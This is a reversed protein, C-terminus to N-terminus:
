PNTHTISPSNNHLAQFWVLSLWTCPRLGKVIEGVWLFMETWIYWSSKSIPYFSTVWKLLQSILIHWEVSLCIGEWCHILLCSVFMSELIHFTGRWILVSSNAYKLTIIEKLYDNLYNNCTDLSMICSKIQLELPRCAPSFLLAPLNSANYKNVLIPDWTGCHRRLVSSPTLGSWRLSFDLSLFMLLYFSFHHMHILTSMHTFDIQQYVM